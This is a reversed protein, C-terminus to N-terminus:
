RGRDEGWLLVQLRSCFVFGHEMCLEAVMEAKEVYEAKRRAQPMLMVRTKDVEGLKSLLQEVENVDDTHDIVFKLQYDYEAILERIIEPKMAAAMGSNALKPSISMLDCRVGERHEVGATEITIHWGAAKFAQTLEALEAQLFPEGGTIVVHRSAQWKNAAELIQAISMEDGAQPDHAYGSDCWKCRLGCGATRVFVSPVGALRGEGQISYFIEVIRM